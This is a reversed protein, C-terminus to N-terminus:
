EKVAKMRLRVYDAYWIGDRYLDHYLMDVARKIIDSKLPEDVGIFPNKVFMNIWDSLGNEGKLETPRDFLVAYRIKFGAKELMSSYEGISPFYFPMVYDLGAEAFSKALASHILSNNGMGGMEFVFQGGSNLANYVCRMMDPQYGKDIWHFVANSFVADVPENLSFDTANALIFNIESNANRASEIMEASSDLGTVSLGKERFLKSMAGNGCGLDLISKIKADDLLEAVDNGYHYVFSFDAM